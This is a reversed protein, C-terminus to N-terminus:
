AAAIELAKRNRELNREAMQAEAELEEALVRAHKPTLAGYVKMEVLGAEHSTFTWGSGDPYTTTSRIM